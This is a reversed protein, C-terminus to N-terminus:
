ARRIAAGIDICSEGAADYFCGDWQQALREREAALLYAVMQPSYSWCDGAGDEDWCHTDPPSGIRELLEALPRVPQQVQGSVPESDDITKTNMAEKGRGRQPCTFM